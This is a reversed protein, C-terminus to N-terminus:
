HKILIPTPLLIGATKSWHWIRLNYVYMNKSSQPYITLGLKVQHRKWVTGKTWKTTTADLIIVANLLRTHPTSLSLFVSLSCCPTKRKEEGLHSIEYSIKLLLHLFAFISQGETREGGEEKRVFSLLPAKFIMSRQSILYSSM